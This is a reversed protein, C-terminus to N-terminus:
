GLRNTGHKYIYFLVASCIFGMYFLYANYSYENSYLWTMTVDFAAYFVVILAATGRQAPNIILQSLAAM